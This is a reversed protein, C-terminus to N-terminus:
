AMPKRDFMVGNWRGDVGVFSITHHWDGVECDAVEYEKGVEFVKMAAVLEYDYGNKGLFTMRDGKFPWGLFRTPEGDVVLQYRSNRTEIEGTIVDHAVVYSTHCYPGRYQPHDLFEGTIIYGLGGECVKKCWNKIRGYHPKDTM